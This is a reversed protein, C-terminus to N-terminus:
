CIATRRSLLPKRSGTTNMAPSATPPRASSEFRIALPSSLFRTNPPHRGHQPDEIRTLRAPALSDDDRSDAGRSRLCEASPIYRQSTQPTVTEALVGQLRM